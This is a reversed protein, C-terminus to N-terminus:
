RQFFDDYERFVEKTAECYVVEDDPKLDSAPPKRVFPQKRLLPM